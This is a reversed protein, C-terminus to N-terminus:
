YTLTCLKLFSIVGQQLFNEVSNSERTHIYVIRVVFEKRIILSYVICISYSIVRRSRVRVFFFCVSARNESREIKTGRYSWLSSFKWRWKIHYHFSQPRRVYRCITCCDFSLAFFGLACISPIANYLPPQKKLKSVVVKWLRFFRYSIYLIYPALIRSPLLKIRCIRSGLLPYEM